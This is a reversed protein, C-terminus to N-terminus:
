RMQPKRHVLKKIYYIQFIFKMNIDYDKYLNNWSHLTLIGKEVNHDIVEKFVIGESSVIVFVYDRYHLKYQWLSKELEKCLYRDGEIMSRPTGDYMSDGALEIVKYNGKEYEIPVLMTDLNEEYEADQLGSLYGAFGIAPIYPVEMFGNHDVPFGEIKKKNLIHPKKPLTDNQLETSFVNQLKELINEGKGSLKVKNLYPRSVGIDEAIEKLTKGTKFQIVRIAGAIENEM